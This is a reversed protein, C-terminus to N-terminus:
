GTKTSISVEDVAVYPLRFNVSWGTERSLGRLRSGLAEFANVSLMCDKVRGVIEGKDIRYGLLVNGSVEGALLNGAWAGMLHVVLLGRDIDKVLERWSMEGPSLVLNSLAPAPPSELGSRLGNGTPRRGLGAASKLDLYFGALVGDRILSAPRCPLGEDDFPASMPGDPLLPNDELTVTPSLLPDGLRNTWPSIGREALSGDLCARLPGLLDRVAHPTLVVPYSGPAMPVNTRGQRLHELATEQLAPIEDGPYGSSWRGEYVSLMNEQEVLEIAFFASFGTRRYALDAGASNLLRVQKLEKQVRAAALAAPEAAIVANVFDRGIDIMRELPFEAVQRHHFDDPGAATAEPCPFAFTAEQGYRAAALAREVLGAEDGPKTTTAFGIKGDAVVRLALGASYATRVQKLRNADFEVPTSTSQHYYVEAAGCRTLATELVNEPRFDEQRTM